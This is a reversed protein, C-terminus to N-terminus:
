ARTDTLTTMKAPSWDRLLELDTQLQGPNASSASADRVRHVQTRYSDAYSNFLLELKKV